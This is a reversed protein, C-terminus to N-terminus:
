KAFSGTWLGMVKVQGFITIMINAPKIDRHVIGAQHMRGLAVLLTKFIPLAEEVPMPGKRQVVEKLTEGEIYEMAIYISDGEDKLSYVTVIHPDHFRALAQAEVLFRRLFSKDAALEPRIMKLAVTRNLKTDLAKYVLGM